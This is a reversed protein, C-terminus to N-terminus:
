SKQNWWDDFSYKGSLAFAADFAFHLLFFINLFTFGTIHDKIMAIGVAFMSLFLSFSTLVRFSKYNYWGYVAAAFYRNLFKNM